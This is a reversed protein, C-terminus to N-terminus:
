QLDQSDAIHDHLAQVRHLNRGAERIDLDDKAATVQRIVIKFKEHGGHVNGQQIHRAVVIRRIDCILGAGMGAAAIAYVARHARELPQINGPHTAANAVPRTNGVLIGLGLHVGAHGGQNCLQEDVQGPVAVPQIDQDCM